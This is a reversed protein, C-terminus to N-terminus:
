PDIKFRHVLKLFEISLEQQCDESIHGRHPESIFEIMPEFKLFLTVLAQTNGQQALRILPVYNEKKM